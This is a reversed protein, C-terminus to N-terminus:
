CVTAIHYVIPVEVPSYGLCEGGVLYTAVMTVLVLLTIVMVIAQKTGKQSDGDGRLTCYHQVRTLVVHHIILNRGHCM